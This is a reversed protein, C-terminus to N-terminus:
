PWTAIATRKWTNTATCVYIYSADWVIQGTVGTAGASAPTATPVIISGNISGGAYVLNGNPNMTLSVGNGTLVIKGNAVNELELADRMATISHASGYQRISSKSTPLLLAGERFQILGSLTDTTWHVTSVASPGVALFSAAKVSGSCALSGSGPDDTGGINLGLLLRMRLLSSTGFDIPSSNTTKIVGRAAGTFVLAGANAAAIGGGLIFGAQSAGGHSISTHAADDSRKAYLIAGSDVDAGIVSILSLTTAGDQLALAGYNVFTKDGRWFQGTTGATIANEKLALAAATLTSIPKALDSTNDVNGLGVSSKTLGLGSLDLNLITNNDADLDSQLVANTLPVM